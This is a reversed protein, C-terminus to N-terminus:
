GGRTKSIISKSHETAEKLVNRANETMQSRDEYKHSINMMCENLDANLMKIEADLGQIAIDIEDESLPDLTMNGVQIRELIVGLDIELGEEHLQDTIEAMKREFTVGEEFAGHIKDAFISHNRLHILYASKKAIEDQNLDVQKDKQKAHSLKNIVDSIMKIQINTMKLKDILGHLEIERQDFYSAYCNTLELGINYGLRENVGSMSSGKYLNILSLM